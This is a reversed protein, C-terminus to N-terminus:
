VEFYAANVSFAVQLILFTGPFLCRIDLSIFCSFIVSKTCTRPALPRKIWNSSLLDVDPHPCFARIPCAHTGTLGEGGVWGYPPWWLPCPDTYTQRCRGGGQRQPTTMRHHQPPNPSEAKTQTHIELMSVGGRALFQCRIYRWGWATVLLGTLKEPFVGVPERAPCKVLRPPPLPFGASM